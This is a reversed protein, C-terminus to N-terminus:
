LLYKEIMQIREHLRMLHFPKPMYENAGLELVKNRDKDSAGASVVITYPLANKQTERLRRLVGFGDLRPLMLDLLLLHIEENALIELATEGNNATRVHYGNRMFYLSLMDCLSGHDEVVLITLKKSSAKTGTGNGNGSRTSLRSIQQKPDNAACVIPSSENEGKQVQAAAGLGGMKGSNQEDFGFLKRMGEVDRKVEYLNDWCVTENLGLESWVEEPISSKDGSKGIGRTECFFDAVTVMSLTRKLAPELGEPLTHRFEHHYRIAQQIDPAFDAKRTWVEGVQAHDAGLVLIEAQDLRIGEEKAMKVARFFEWKAYRCLLVKGIDCLFGVLFNKFPPIQGVSAAIRKAAIACGLSHEWLDRLSIAEEERKEELGQHRISNFPYITLGITLSKINELGLGTIAQSITPFKHAPGAACNALKLLRAALVQDSGIVEALSQVSAKEDRTAAIVRVAIPALGAEWIRGLIEGSVQPNNSM